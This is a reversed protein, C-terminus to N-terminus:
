LPAEFGLEFKTEVETANYYAVMALLKLENLKYYLECNHKM